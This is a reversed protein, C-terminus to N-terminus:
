FRLENSVHFVFEGQVPNYGADLRGVGILPAVLLLEVGPGSALKGLGPFEEDWAHGADFFVAGTLGVDLHPFIERQELIDFRLAVSTLFLNRGRRWGAPYSRVAWSGGTYKSRYIPIRGSSIVLRAGGALRLRNLLPLVGGARGDWTVFAPSQEDWGALCLGLATRTGRTPNNLIDYRNLIWAGSIELFRDHGDPHITAGPEAIKMEIYELNVGWSDYRNYTHAFGVLVQSRRQDLEELLNFWRKQSVKFGLTNRRGLFWPRLYELYIGKEAGAHWELGLEEHWGRFNFNFLGAGWVWGRDEDWDVFPYVVLTFREVLDYHLICGGSSDPMVLQSISSFLELNHLRERDDALRTSDALSDVKVTLSRIVVEPQTHELGALTLSTVRPAATLIAPLLLLLSLWSCPAILRSL